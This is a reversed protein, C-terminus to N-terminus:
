QKRRRPHSSKSCSRRETISTKENKEAKFREAFASSAPLLFAVGVLIRCAKV